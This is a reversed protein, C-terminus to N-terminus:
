EAGEGTTEQVVKRCLRVLRAHPLDQTPPLMVIEGVRFSSYYWRSLLSLHEWPPLHSGSDSSQNSEGTSSCGLPELLEHIQSDLSAPSCVNEQLSLAVPGRLNGDVVRFFAVSREESGPLVLVANLQSLERVLPPKLRVVERTKELKRHLRAAEEFDLQASSRDREAELSHLLAAGESVLFDAVRGVEQRYEEETCGKFCPALCMKM